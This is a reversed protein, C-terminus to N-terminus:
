AGRQQGGGSRQRPARQLLDEIDLGTAVELVRRQIEDRPLRRAQLPFAINEFASKHPYLAYFQFVMAIDRVAPSMNNVVTDGIRITGAEPKELGSICRLTTTKGCGSPGLFVMFEHDEVSLDLERVAVVEGFRKTMKE